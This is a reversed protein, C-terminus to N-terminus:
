GRWDACRPLWLALAALALLISAPEPVPSAGVVSGAAEELPNGFQSKWFVYDADNIVDPEDDENDLPGGNRWDVYDAADVTGNNNYDGPV